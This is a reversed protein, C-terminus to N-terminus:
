TVEVGPLSRALLARTEEAKKERETKPLADVDAIPNEPFVGGPFVSLSQRLLAVAEGAGIAEYAAVTEESPESWV